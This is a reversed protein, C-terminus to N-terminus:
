PPDTKVLSKLPAKVRLGNVLVTAKKGTIEVLEGTSNSDGIIVFDGESPVQRYRKQIQIEETLESKERELTTKALDVDERAERILGRDASGETIIKEVAREIRQNAGRLIEEADRYAKQLLQNKKNKFSSQEEDFIREKKELEAVRRNYRTRIEESEQISRELSVLLDGMKDRNEGLLSRAREMLIGPLKMRDAIEFAYSSGPIGKRFRYTPSLHEQNFEMAGNVVEERQHAFVKLSGHHTTIIVRAGREVLLETFAQFLAGGEEPDTGSGAEDVLVLSGPRLRELTNKMWKLRSSFTSLDDEISQDDGMDVYLGSIVPLRSDPHLPLPFGCQFMLSLLGVSKMAVSKGGANPGTIVLAREQDTLELDLPIVPEKQRATLNKLILNPNFAQILKLHLGGSIVPISGNIKLGFASKSAIEDLEAITETNLDLEDTFKRVFSSLERMIRETERKEEAELQRIENNIQLAEVPELYLTQGTSSVDHIFGDVKRKFEALIPVVMRGSRITAGEDSTMGESNLRRLVRQITARLNNKSRNLATRIKRLESSADDRLEGLDNITQSIRKELERLPILTSGLETLHTFDGELKDFFDKLKRATKAHDLIIIFDTLQVMSGEIRCEKVIDRIDDLQTLPPFLGSEVVKLWQSALSLRRQVVGPDSSPKCNLVREYGYPTFAERAATDRVHDFGTKECSREPYTIFFQAM